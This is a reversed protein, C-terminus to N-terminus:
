TAYTWSGADVDGVVATGSIEEVGLQLLCDWCKWGSRRRRFRAQYAAWIHMSGIMCDFHSYQMMQEAGELGGENELRKKSVFLGMRM